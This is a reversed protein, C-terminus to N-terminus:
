HCYSVPLTENGLEAGLVLVLRKKKEFLVLHDSFRLIVASQQVPTDKLSNVRKSSKKNLVFVVAGPRCTLQFLVFQFLQKFM